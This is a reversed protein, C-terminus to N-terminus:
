RLYGFTVATTDGCTAPITKVYVNSRTAWDVRHVRISDYNPCEFTFTDDPEPLAEWAAVLVVYILALVYLITRPKM